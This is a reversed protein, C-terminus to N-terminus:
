EQKGEGQGGGYAHPGPWTHPLESDAQTSHALVRRFLSSGCRRTHAGAQREEEVSYRDSQAVADCVWVCVCVCVFQSRPVRLCACVSACMCMFSGVCVTQASM